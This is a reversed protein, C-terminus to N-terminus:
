NKRKKDNISGEKLIDQEWDLINRLFGEKDAKKGLVKGGWGDDKEKEKCLDSIFGVLNNKSKKGVFLSSTNGASSDVEGQILLACDPDSVQEGFSAGHFVAVHDTVKRYGFSAGSIHSVHTCVLLALM